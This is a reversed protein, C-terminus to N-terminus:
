FPLGRRSDSAAQRRPAREWWGRKRSHTRHPDSVRNSATRCPCSKHRAETLLAAHLMRVYAEQLLDDAAGSNGSVRRIYARLAPATRIYFADFQERSLTEAERSAVYEMAAAEM